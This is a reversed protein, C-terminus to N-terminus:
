STEDTFITLQSSVSNVYNKIWGVYKDKSNKSPFSIIRVYIITTINKLNYKEFDIISLEKPM